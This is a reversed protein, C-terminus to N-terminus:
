TPRATPVRRRPCACTPSSPPRGGGRGRGARLTLRGSNLGERVMDNSAPRSSAPDRGAILREVKEPVVDACVVDHGLHAFCAGTTLGVYGTGIIAIKAM